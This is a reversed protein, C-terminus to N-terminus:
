VPIMKRFVINKARREKRSYKFHCALIVPPLTSTRCAPFRLISGPVLFIHVVLITGKEDSMYKQESFKSRILTKKKKYTTSLAGWYHRSVSGTTKRWNQHNPGWTMLITSRPAPIRPIVLVLCLLAWHDNPDDHHSQSLNQPWVPDLDFEFGSFAGVRRNKRM